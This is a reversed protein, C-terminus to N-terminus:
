SFTHCIPIQQKLVLQLMRGQLSAGNGRVRSRTVIDRLIRGVLAMAAKKGAWTRKFLGMDHLCDPHLPIDFNPYVNLKSEWEGLEKLNFMKTMLSRSVSEGGPLHDYYDPWFKCLHFEMGKSELFEVMRPGVKLYADVRESSAGRSSYGNFVNDLYTRAREYSDDRGQRKMLPNNPIWLVGGSLATSGGVKDMKEIILPNLGRDKAALAACMGGGGSGVIVFDYTENWHTM